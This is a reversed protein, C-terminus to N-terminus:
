FKLSFGVAAKRQKPMSLDRATSPSHPGKEMKQGFMGIGIVGNPMLQRGAFIRSEWGKGAIGGAAVEPVQFSHSSQFKTDPHWPGSPPEAAIAGSAISSFTLVFITAVLRAM